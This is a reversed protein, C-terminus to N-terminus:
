TDANALGCPNDEVKQGGKMEEKWAHIWLFIEKVYVFIDTATISLGCSSDLEKCMYLFFQVEVLHGVPIQHEAGHVKSM